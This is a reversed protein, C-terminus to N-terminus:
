VDGEVAELDAAAETSDLDANLLEAGDKEVNGLQSFQSRAYIQWAIAAASAVAYTSLLAPYLIQQYNGGV